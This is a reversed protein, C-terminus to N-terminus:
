MWYMGRDRPNLNYYETSRDLLGDTLNSSSMISALTGSNDDTGNSLRQSNTIPSNSLYKDFYFQHWNNEEFVEQQNNLEKSANTLASIVSWMTGISAAELCYIQELKRFILEFQLEGDIKLGFDQKKLPFFHTIRM